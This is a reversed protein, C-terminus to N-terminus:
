SVPPKSPSASDIMDDSKREKTIQELGLVLKPHPRTMEFAILGGLAHQALEHGFDQLTIWFIYCGFTFDFKVTEVAESEQLADFFTSKGTENPAAFSNLGDRIDELAVGRGGFQRVNYLRIARLKM